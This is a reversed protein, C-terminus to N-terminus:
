TEATVYRLRCVRFSWIPGSGHTFTFFEKPVLNAGECKNERLGYKPEIRDRLKEVVVHACCRREAKGINNDQKERNSNQKITFQLFPRAVREIMDTM